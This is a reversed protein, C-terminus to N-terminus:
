AGAVWARAAQAERFDGGTIAFTFGILFALMTGVAREFPGVRCQRPAGLNQEEKRALRRGLLVTATMLVAYHPVLWCSKWLAVIM